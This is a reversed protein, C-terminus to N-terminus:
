GRDRPPPQLRGSAIQDALQEIARRSARWGVVPRQSVDSGSQAFVMWPRRFAVRGIVGAILLVVLILLELAIAVVNLLILALFAVVVLAVLALVIAGFIGLDDFGIDGWSGDGIDRLRPRWVRARGPLWRRGVTWTRGDPATVKRRLM